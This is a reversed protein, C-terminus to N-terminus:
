PLSLETRVPERVFCGIVTGSRGHDRGGGFLLRGKEALARVNAILKQEEPMDRQPDVM